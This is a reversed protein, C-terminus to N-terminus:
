ANLVIKKTSNNRIKYSTLRNSDNGKIVKFIKYTENSYYQRAKDLKSEPILRLRVADGIQLPEEDCFESSYRLQKPTSVLTLFYIWISGM